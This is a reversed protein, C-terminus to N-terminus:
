IEGMRLKVRYIGRFPKEIYLYTLYSLLTLVCFMVMTKLLFIMNIDQEGVFNIFEVKVFFIYVIWHLLYISYSINGFFHLLKVGLLKSFFGTNSYLSFILISAISPILVSPLFSLKKFYKGGPNVQNYKEQILHESINSINSLRSVSINNEDMLISIEYPNVKKEIDKLLIKEVETLEFKKIDAKERTYVAGYEGSLVICLTILGISTLQLLNSYKTNLKIYKVLLAMLAGLTFGTIGRAIAEIGTTYGRFYQQCIISLIFAIGILMLLLNRKSERISIIVIPFFLYCIVEVSISWAPPNTIADSLYFPNLLFVSCIYNFTLNFNYTPHIVVLTLIILTFFHLPFVRLMRKLYFNPISTSIINKYILTLVFGSLIFFIDVSYYAYGLFYNLIANQMSFFWHYGVVWIALLGRISTLPINEKIM